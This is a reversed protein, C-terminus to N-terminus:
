QKLWDRGLEHATKGFRNYIILQGFVLAIQRKDSPCSALSGAVQGSHTMAL